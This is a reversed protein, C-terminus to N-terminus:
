LGRRRLKATSARVKLTPDILVQTPEGSPDGIRELLLQSAQQAVREAHTAVSTLPPVQMAALPIDDFSAVAIDRGPKLGRQRLESYVGIAVADSYAIVAEPLNGRDLVEAMGRAGDDPTNQAATSQEPDFLLQGAAFGEVLGAIRDRRASSAAPGGVLVASSVGLSEVHEALMKGAAINDPGVYDFASTFHRTIQVTPVGAHLLAEELGSDESGMAPLLILGDVQRQVMAEILEGQRQADDRSYGVFLQYGGAHIAEEVVMTLEAFYPNRIETVVLGITFSKSARMMAAQRNYVYGLEEMAQRVKNHTAQSIRSSGRLVLSATSRSVGARESVDALTARSM